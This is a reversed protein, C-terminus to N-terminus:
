EAKVIKVKELGTFKKLISLVMFTTSDAKLNTFTINYRTYGSRPSARGAAAM